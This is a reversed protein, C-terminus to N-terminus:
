DGVKQLASLLVAASSLPSEPGFGASVGVTNQSCECAKCLQNCKAVQTISADLCPDHHGKFFVVSHPMSTTCATIVEESSMCPLQPTEQAERSVLISQLAAVEGSSSQGKGTPSLFGMVAERCLDIASTM